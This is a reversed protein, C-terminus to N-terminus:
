SAQDQSAPDVPLSKPRPSNQSSAEPHDQESAQPSESSQPQEPADILRDWLPGFLHRIDERAATSESLEVLVASEYQRKKQFGLKTAIKDLVGTERIPYRSLLSHIDGQEIFSEFRQKEADIIPATEFSVEIRLRSKIDEHKPLSEFYKRRIEKEAVKICLRDAHSKLYEIGSQIAAEVSAETNGGIAKSLRNAIRRILTPHYFISEVSYAKLAFIGRDMLDQHDEKGRADGDVIGYVSLWHLDDTTQLTGVTQEVERCNNKPLLTWNPFLTSYLSKDLSNSTGEVVLIRRRAGLIDTKFDETIESNAPLLDFEWSQNGAPNYSRVLLVRADPHDRVLELDHSAVFFTCDERCLFLNSLLPSIIARHIHREPEDICLISKDEAIVVEMALLLANREGDSLRAISFPRSGSRTALIKDFHGFQIQIDLGSVKFVSNVRSVPSPAVDSKSLAPSHELQNAILRARRNEAYVFRALLADVHLHAEPQSWRSAEDREFYPTSKELTLLEIPSIAIDENKLWTQRQASIRRTTLGGLSSKRYLYHLLTSKGSGNAGVLFIRDGLTVRLPTELMQPGPFHITYSSIATSNM